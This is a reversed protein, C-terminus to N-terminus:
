QDKWWDLHILTEENLMVTGYPSSTHILQIVATASVNSNGAQKLM